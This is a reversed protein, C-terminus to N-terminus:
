NPCVGVLDSLMGHVEVDTAETYATYDQISMLLLGLLLVFCVVTFSGVSSSATSLCHPFDLLSM